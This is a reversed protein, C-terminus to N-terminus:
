ERKHERVFTPLEWVWLAPQVATIVDGYFDIDRQDVPVLAKDDEHSM